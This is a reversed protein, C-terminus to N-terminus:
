SSVYREMKTLTAMAVDAFKDEISDPLKWPGNSTLHRRAADFSGDLEERQKKLLSLSFMNQNASVAVESSGSEIKKSQKRGKEPDANKEM